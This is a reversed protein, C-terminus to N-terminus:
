LKNKLSKFYKVHSEKSDLLVGNLDRYMMREQDYIIYRHLKYHQENTLIIVDRLHEEAYSWHHRQKGIPCPIRLSVNKARYKEPYKEKYKQMSKAKKIQTPKHKEKYGLRYYKDRQRKKELEHWEPNKMLESARKATDRKTCVKCKGLFGDGMQPHKYFDSVPKTSGCKFCKKNEM